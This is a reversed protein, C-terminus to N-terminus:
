KVFFWRALYKGMDLQTHAVSEGDGYKVCLGPKNGASTGPGMEVSRYWVGDDFKFVIAAAAASVAAAWESREVLAAAEHHPMASEGDRINSNSSNSSENSNNNNNSNSNININSNNTSNGAEPELAAAAEEAALCGLVIPLKMVKVVPVWLGRANQSVRVFITRGKDGTNGDADGKEISDIRYQVHSHTFLKGKNDDHLIKAKQAQSQKAKTTRNKKNDARANCLAVIDSHAAAAAADDKSQVHDQLMGRLKTQLDTHTAHGPNMAIAIAALELSTHKVKRSSGAAKTGLMALLMPNIDPKSGSIM